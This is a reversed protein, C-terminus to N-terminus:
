LFADKLNKNLSEHFNLHQGMFSFTQSILALLAFHKNHGCRNVIFVGDFEELQVPVEACLSLTNYEEILCDQRLNVEFSLNNKFLM